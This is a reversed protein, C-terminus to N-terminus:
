SEMYSAEFEKIFAKFEKERRKQMQSSQMFICYDFARERTLYKEPMLGEEVLQKNLEKVKADWAKTLARQKKQHANHEAIEQDLSEKIEAIKMQNIREVIEITEADMQDIEKRLSRRYTFGLHKIHYCTEQLGYKLEDVSMNNHAAYQELIERPMENFKDLLAKMERHNLGKSRSMIDESESIGDLLELAVWAEAEM